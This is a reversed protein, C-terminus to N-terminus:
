VFFQECDCNFYSIPLIFIYGDSFTITWSRQRLLKRHFMLYTILQSFQQALLYPQVDFRHFCTAAVICAASWIMLCCIFIGCKIIWLLRHNIIFLHIFYHWEYWLMWSVRTVFDMLKWRIILGLNHFCASVASTLDDWSSKRRQATACALWSCSTCSEAWLSWLLGLLNSHLLVLHWTVALLSEVVTAVVDFLVDLVVTARFYSAVM